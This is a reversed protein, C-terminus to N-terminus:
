DYKKGVGKQDENSALYDAGIIIEISDSDKKEKYEIIGGILESISIAQSKDRTDFYKIITDEYNYNDANGIRGIEFGYKGLEDAAQRAMGAVGNGNYISLQYRSNKIYEKSRILKNILIDLEEEDAIWYSAGNIYKPEGPLTATTIMEQNMDKLLRVFPSIDQFPINTDVGAKIDKILGPLKVIINPNLIRNVVAKIFKQQREVRGIDGYIPERYRVYQLCQDGNLLQKGAPLNIYLGGAKDVYNLPEKINIEIGGLTDVIQAFGDFDTEIYYDIPINLFSELTRDTLEIGGFAHSANVRDLGHGPVEVRTDRPISLVGVEKTKLDISALIITDARSPGNITSDYGIVLINIKSSKFPNNNIVSFSTNFIFSLSIGLLILFIFGSLLLTNRSLKQM